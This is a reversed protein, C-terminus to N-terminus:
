FVELGQLEYISEGNVGTAEATRARAFAMISSVAADIREVSRKKSPKQNGAADFEIVVNDICWRL